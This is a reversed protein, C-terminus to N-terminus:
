KKNINDKNDKYSVIAGTIMKGHWDTCYHANLMEVCVYVCIWM